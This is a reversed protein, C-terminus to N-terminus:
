YRRDGRMRGTSTSASASRTIETAPTADALLACALVYDACNEPDVRWLGVGADHVARRSTTTRASSITALKVEYWDIVLSVHDDAGPEIWYANAATVGIGSVATGATLVAATARHCRVRRLYKLM